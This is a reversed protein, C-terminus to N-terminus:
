LKIEQAKLAKKSAKWPANLVQLNGVITSYKRDVKGAQNGLM